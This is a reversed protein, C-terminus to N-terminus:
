FFKMLIELVKLRKELKNKFLNYIALVVLQNKQLGTQLLGKVLAIILEKELSGALKESDEIIGSSSKGYIIQKKNSKENETPKEVTKKGWAKVLSDINIFIVRKESNLIECIWKPFM